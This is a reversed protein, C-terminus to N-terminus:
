SRFVTVPDVQTIKRIAFASAAFCMLLTIGFITAASFPTILIVIGQTAIAEAVALSLLLGPIYGLIAMWLAQEGIVGYITWNSAGIAKLTAFERLHESVSAYLIQGVVVTGVVIGIGAGLGLVIGIGSRQEWYTQTQRAMEGKTLVQTEPLATALRQKLQDINMGAQAQVLVYGIQDTAALPQLQPPFSPQAPECEVGSKAVPCPLNAALPSSIYAKANLLSTLLIPGFVLSKTGKTYGIVRAPLSGIVGRDGLQEIQLDERSNQDISVSYPRSLDAIKGQAFGVPAFLQGLPDIGMFTVLTLRNHATRWLGLWVILAEARQVGKLQRAQELNTFDLPPTLNLNLMGKSTIWLDARSRVILDITSRTFGQYIGTQLTVLTVAFLIGAQAIILRPINEFLSDRAFSGLLWRTPVAM